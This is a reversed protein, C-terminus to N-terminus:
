NCRPASFSGELSPVQNSFFPKVHCLRGEVTSEDLSLIEFVADFSGGGLSCDQGDENGTEFANGHVDQGLLSYVGPSQLEPPIAITLGWHGGCQPSAEPDMCVLPQDTLTVFITGPDVQGGDGGGTSPDDKPPIQAQTYALITPIDTLPTAAGECPLAPRDEPLGGTTTGTSTSTAGPDTGTSTSTVDPDNGTTTSTAGPDTGTSTSTSEPDSGTSSDDQDAESASTTAESAGETEYGIVKPELDCAALTSGIIAAILPATTSFNFRTM